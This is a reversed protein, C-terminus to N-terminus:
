IFFSNLKEQTYLLSFNCGINRGIEVASDDKGFCVYKWGLNKTKAVIYELEKYTTFYSSEDKGGIFMVVIQKKNSNINNQFKQFRNLLACLSDYLARFGNNVIFLPELFHVPKNLALLNSRENFSAISVSNFDKILKYDFFLDFSSDFILFISM